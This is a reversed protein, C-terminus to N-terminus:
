CIKWLLVVGSTRQIFYNAYKGSYCVGSSWLVPLQVIGSVCPQLVGYYHAINPGNPTAHQGESQARSRVIVCRLAVVAILLMVDVPGLSVRLYWPRSGKEVTHEQCKLYKRRMVQYERNTILAIIFSKHLEFGTRAELREGKLQVAM